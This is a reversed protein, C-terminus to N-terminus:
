RADVGAVTDAKGSIVAFQESKTPGLAVFGELFLAVGTLDAPGLGEALRSSLFHCNYTQTDM